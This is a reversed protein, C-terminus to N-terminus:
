SLRKLDKLATKQIQKLYFADSKRKHNDFNELATTKVSFLGVLYFSRKLQTIGSRASLLRYTIEDGGLSYIIRAKKGRWLGAWLYKKEKMNFAVHPWLLQDFLSKFKGPFAGWYIPTYITVMKAATIEQQMTKVVPSLKTKYGDILDQNFDIDRIHYIKITKGSAEIVQRYAEILTDSISHTGPTTNLLIIDYAM